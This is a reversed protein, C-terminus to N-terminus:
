LQSERRSQTKLNFGILRERDREKERHGRM